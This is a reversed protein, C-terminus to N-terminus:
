NNAGTPPEAQKQSTTKFRDEVQNMVDPGVRLIPGQGALAESRVFAYRKDEECIIAIFAEDFSAQCKECNKSTMSTDGPINSPSHVIGCVPCHKTPPFKEKSKSLKGLMVKGADVHDKVSRFLNGLNQPGNKPDLM